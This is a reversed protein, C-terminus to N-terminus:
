LCVCQKGEMYFGMGASCFCWSFHLKVQFTPTRVQSLQSPNQLPFVFVQILSPLIVCVLGATWTGVSKCHGLCTATGWLLWESPVAHPALWGWGPGHSVQGWSPVLCACFVKVWVCKLPFYAQPQPDNPNLRAPRLWGIVFGWRAWHYFGSVGWIELLPKPKLSSEPMTVWVPVKNIRPLPARSREMEWDCSVFALLIKREKM